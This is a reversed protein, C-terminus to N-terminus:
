QLFRRLTSLDLRPCAPIVILSISCAAPCLCIARIARVFGSGEVRSRHVPIGRLQLRQQLAHAFKEGERRNVPTVRIEYKNTAGHRM